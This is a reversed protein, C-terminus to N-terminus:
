QIQFAATAERSYPLGGNDASNTLVNVYITAQGLFAWTPISITETFTSNGPSTTPISLTNYGVPVKQSDFITLAITSPLPQNNISYLTVNIPVTTGKHATAPAQITVPTIIYNYSFGVTDNLSTSPFNVAGIIKWNGFVSEPTNTDPWPLRFQANAIGISDTRAGRVAAVSGNSSYITFVVDENVISANHYTVFAYMNISEQPGYPGSSTNPGKGGRDLYVDITGAAQGKPSVHIVASVSSSNSFTASSPPTPDPATVILIIRLDFVSQATFNVIKGSLSQFLSGNLYEVRWAYNTIPCTENAGVTDYGPQSGSADLIINDGQSYYTGDSPLFIATPAHGGSSPLPTPSPTPSPTPTPNGGPMPSPTPTPNGGPIPSPTPTPTGGAQNFTAGVATFVIPVATGSNGPPGNLASANFTIASIGYGVVLFTLTAIDGSGSIGSLAFRTCSTQNLYGVVNDIPPSLFLVNSGLFGADAPDASMNLVQPNWGIEFTYQWLGQISDVHIAVSFTSGIGQGTITAPVMSLTASTSAQANFLMLFSFVLLTVLFIGLYKTKM